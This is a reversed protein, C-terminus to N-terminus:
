VLTFVALLRRADRRTKFPFSMQGNGCIVRCYSDVNWWRISISRCEADRAELTCRDTADHVFCFEDILWRITIFENADSEQEKLYDVAFRFGNMWAADEEHEIVTQYRGPQMESWKAELVEVSSSCLKSDSNESMDKELIFCGVRVPNFCANDPHIRV